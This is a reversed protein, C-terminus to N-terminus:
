KGGTDSFKEAVIRIQEETVDWDFDIEVIRDEYCVLYRQQLEDSGHINSM